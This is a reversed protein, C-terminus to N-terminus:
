SKYSALLNNLKATMSSLHDSSSAIEEVSRANSVSLDNVVDVKDIMAQIAKGNAVYGEVMEDVKKVAVDM